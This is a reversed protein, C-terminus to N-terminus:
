ATQSPDIITELIPNLRMALAKTVLKADCNTLTIPRWNKIQRTDKGEKPLITIVSEKHSDPLQGSEVSYDWAEKLISGVQPWFVKYVSYPIGDPGPASDKCTLLAKHLDHLLIEDDMKQKNHESLKPCTEFFNNDNTDNNSTRIKKYLEQYFTKIGNTVEDQGKFTRGEDSISEILKQKSKFKNLSLFYKNSKEGYEYWKATSKFDTYASIKTRIIELNNKIITRAIDIKNIRNKNSEVELHTGISNLTKIKLKEIDNLAGELNELEIKSEIKALGTYKAITSRIIMKLYELKVHGNWDNPIQALLFILEERIQTRKNPDNLTEVNVKVIGPGKQVSNKVAIKTTVAAHDSKDFAWDTNSDKVRNVLEGSVYIYDLRSYCSGRNWSYGNTDHILRYSDVLNCLKNNQMISKTLEIEIQSRSRNVSDEKKMCSNFDGALIIYTDPYKNRIELLKCYVEEIFVISQRHDNPCYVNAFLYMESNSQAVTFLQRGMNNSYNEIIEFENNVITIVGASNSKYQSTLVKHKTLFEIQELKMIHTEQLMVIGGMDLLKNAKNIVRKLKSRNALGNCNYTTVNMTKTNTKNCNVPMQPGPNLEVNGRKLLTKIILRRIMKDVVSFVHRIANLLLYLKKSHSYINRSKIVIRIQLLSLCNKFVCSLNSFLSLKKAKRSRLRAAKTRIFKTQANFLITRGKRRVQANKSKRKKKRKNQSGNEQTWSPLNRRLLICNYIHNKSIIKEDHHDKSSEEITAGVNVCYFVILYILIYTKNNLTIKTDVRQKLTLQRDM